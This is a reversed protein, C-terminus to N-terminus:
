KKLQISKGKLKWKMRILALEDGRRWDIMWHDLKDVVWNLKKKPSELATTVM